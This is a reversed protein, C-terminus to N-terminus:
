CFTTCSIVDSYFLLSTNDHSEHSCDISKKAANKCDWGSFRNFRVVVSVCFFFIDTHTNSLVYWVSVCYSVQFHRHKGGEWESKYFSLVGVSSLWHIEYTFTNKKFTINITSLCFVAEFRDCKLLVWDVTAMANIWSANKFIWVMKVCRVANRGAMQSFQNVNEIFIIEKRLTSLDTGRTGNKTTNTENTTTHGVHAM